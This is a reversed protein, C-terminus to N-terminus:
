LKALVERISWHNPSQAKVTPPIPKIETRHLWPSFFCGQCGREAAGKYGAGGRLTGQRSRLARAWTMEERRWGGGGGGPGRWTQSWGRRCVGLSRDEAWSLWSSTPRCFSRLAGVVDLSLSLFCTLFSCELLPSLTDLPGSALM